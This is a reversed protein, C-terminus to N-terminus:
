RVGISPENHLRRQNCCSWVTGSIVDAHRVGGSEPVRRQSMDSHPRGGTDARGANGEPREEDVVCCNGREDRRERVSDLNM